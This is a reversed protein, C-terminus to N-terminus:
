KGTQALRLERARTLITDELERGVRPNVEIDRWVGKDDLKQKFLTIKVGDARLTKDLILATVKFREGKTKPDEYWDTIIVGGFPDASTFPMFALTDLTARWLFSNVGIGGGKGNSDKDESGGMGFLGEGGTISGRGEKLALNSNLPQTAKSDNGFIGCASLSLIFLGALLSRITINHYM